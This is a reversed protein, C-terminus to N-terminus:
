NKMVLCKGNQIASKKPKAEKAKSDKTSPIYNEDWENQLYDENNTTIIKYNNKVYFKRRKYWQRKYLDHSDVLDIVLPREHKVRLIRGVAQEIDTKTIRM